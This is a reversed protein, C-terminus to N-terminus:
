VTVWKGQVDALKSVAKSFFGDRVVTALAIATSFRSTHYQKYGRVKINREKGQTFRITDKSAGRIIAIRRNTTKDLLVEDHNNLM